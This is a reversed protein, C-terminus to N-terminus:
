EASAGGGVVGQVRALEGSQQRITANTDVAACLEGAVLLVLGHADLPISGVAQGMLRLEAASEPAAVLVAVSPVHDTPLSRYRTESPIRYDFSQFEEVMAAARVPFGELPRGASEVCVSCAFTYAM